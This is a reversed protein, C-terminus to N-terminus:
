NNKSVCGDDNLFVKKRSAELENRLAHKVNLCMKSMYVRVVILLMVNRFNM